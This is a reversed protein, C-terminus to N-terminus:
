SPDKEKWQALAKDPAIMVDERGNETVVSGDPRLVILAPIGRVQFKQALSQAEKSGAGPVTLWKMKMENIYTKKEGESNDLSVFVIEFDKDANDDRFKVLSPTFARCPPCWHASFYLAVTKGKLTAPDVEKGEADHLVAPLIAGLGSTEQARLPTSFLLSALAVVLPSFHPKMEIKPLRRTRGIRADFVRSKDLNNAFDAIKIPKMPPSEGPYHRRESTSEPPPDHCCDTM